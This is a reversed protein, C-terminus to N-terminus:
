CKINQMTCTKYLFAHANMTVLQIKQSLIQKDKKELIVWLDKFIQSRIIGFENKLNVEKDPISLDIFFQEDEQYIQPAFELIILTFNDIPTKVNLKLATEFLFIHNDIGSEPLKKIKIAISRMLNFLDKTAQNFERIIFDESYKTSYDYVMSRTEPNITKLVNAIKTLVDTTVPAM